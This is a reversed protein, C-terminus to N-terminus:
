PNDSLVRLADRLPILLERREAMEAADSPADLAFTCEEHCEWEEDCCPCTRLHCAEEAARAVAELAALRNVPVDGEAM